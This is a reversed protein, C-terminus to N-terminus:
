FFFSSFSFCIPFNNLLFEFIFHIKVSSEIGNLDCTLSFCEAPLSNWLRATWPFFSNVYVDKYGRLITVSLDHLKNSYLTSRGLCYPLPALEACFRGNGHRKLTSYVHHTQLSDILGNRNLITNWKSVLWKVEM